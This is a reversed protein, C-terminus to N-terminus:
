PLHIPTQAIEPFQEIRQMQREVVNFSVPTRTTRTCMGVSHWIRSDMGNIIQCVVTRHLEGGNLEIALIKALILIDPPLKSGPGPHASLQQKWRRFERSQHICRLIPQAKQWSVAIVDSLLRDIQAASLEKGAEKAKNVARALSPFDTPLRRSSRDLRELDAVTACRRDAERQARRRQARRSM